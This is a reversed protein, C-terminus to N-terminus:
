TPRAPGLVPVGLCSGPRGPTGTRSSLPPRPASGAFGWATEPATVRLLCSDQRRLPVVSLWRRRGPTRGGWVGCHSASSTPMDVGGGEPSVSSPGRRAVGDGCAHEAPDQWLCSTVDARVNLALDDAPAQSLRDARVRGLLCPTWTVATVSLSLSRLALGRTHSRLPSTRFAPCVGGLLWSPSPPM